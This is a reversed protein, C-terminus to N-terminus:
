RLLPAALSGSAFHRVFRLNKAPIQFTGIKTPLFDGPHPVLTKPAWVHLRIDAVARSSALAGLTRARRSGPRLGYVDCLRRRPRRDFDRAGRLAPVDSVREHLGGGSQDATRDRLLRHTHGSHRGHADASYGCRYHWPGLQKNEHTNRFAGLNPGFTPSHWITYNRRNSSSFKPISRTM